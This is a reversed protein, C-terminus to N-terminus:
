TPGPSVGPATLCARCVHFRNGAEDVRKDNV